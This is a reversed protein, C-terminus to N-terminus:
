ENVVEGSPNLEWYDSIRNYHLKRGDKKAGVFREVFEATFEDPTGILYQTLIDFGGFTAREQLLDHYNPDDRIEECQIVRDGKADIILFDVVYERIGLYIRQDKLFDAGTLTLVEEVKSIIEDRSPSNFSLAGSSSNGESDTALIELRNTGKRVGFEVEEKLVYSELDGGNVSVGVEALDGDQDDVDAIYAGRGWKDTLDPSFISYAFLTIEPSFSEPTTDDDDAPSSTDDDINDTDDDLPVSDDDIFSSDDDSYTDDDMPQENPVPDKSSDEKASSSCNLGNFSYFMSLSAVTLLSVGRLSFDYFRKVRKLVM